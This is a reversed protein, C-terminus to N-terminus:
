LTSYRRLSASRLRIRSISAEISPRPLPYRPQYKEHNEETGEPLYPSWLRKRGYKELENKM